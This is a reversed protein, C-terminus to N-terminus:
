FVSFRWLLLLQDASLLELEFLSDNKGAEYNDLHNIILLCVLEREDAEFSSM